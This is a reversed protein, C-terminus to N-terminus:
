AAYNGFRSRGHGNGVGTYRQQDLELVRFVTRGPLGEHTGVTREEVPEAQAAPDRLVLGVVERLIDQQLDRPRHFPELIVRGDAGEARPKELDRPM